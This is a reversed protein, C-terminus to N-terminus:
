GYWRSCELAEMGDGKFNSCAASSKTNPGSPLPLQQGHRRFTPNGIRQEQPVRGLHQMERAPWSRGQLPPFPSLPTPLLLPPPPAVGAPRPALCRFCWTKSLWCGRVSCFPCTWAGPAVPVIQRIAGGDPLCSMFLLLNADVRNSTLTACDAFRKSCEGVLYFMSVPVEMLQEVRCSVSSVLDRGTCGNM